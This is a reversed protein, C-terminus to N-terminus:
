GEEKIVDSASMATHAAGPETSVLNLHEKPIPPPTHGSPLSVRSLELQVRHPPDTLALNRHRLRRTIRAAFASARQEMALREDPTQRDRLERAWWEFFRANRPDAPDLADFAQEAAIRFVADAQRERLDNLRAADDRDQPSSM